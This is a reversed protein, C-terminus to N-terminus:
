SQACEVLWKAVMGARTDNIWVGCTRLAARLKRLAAGDARELVDKTFGKFDEAFTEWLDSDQLDYYGYVQRRYEVYESIEKGGANEKDIGEPWRQRGKEIEKTSISM